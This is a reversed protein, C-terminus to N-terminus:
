ELLKPIQYCNDISETNSLLKEPSYSFGAVDPRLDRFNITNDDKKDSYDQNFDKLIDSLKIFGTLEDILKQSESESFKLKSLEALQKFMNIEM